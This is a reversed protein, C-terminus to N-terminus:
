PRVALAEAALAKAAPDFRLGRALADDILARGARDGSAALIVGRHLTLKPDPTHLAVARASVDRAGALDGQRYLVLALADDAYVGGRHANDDDITKRALDVDRDLTALLVALSRKDGSKGLAIARALARESAVTDGQIEHAKALWWATDVLPAKDLAQQLLAVAEGARDTAILCRAKGVLAAPHDPKEALAMEYGKLAGDVDGKMWFINAAESLVWAAPEHDKQGRGADYALRIAELAGAEDGRLWELYSARAYSPLCPKRDMMEQAAKEAGEVDGLELLADSLTGWTLIDEHDRALMKNALDRAEAFKHDNLLALGRLGLALANDPERELVEQACADAHMYFGPDGSNRALEVWARGLLIWLDSKGENARVARQREGVLAGVSGDGGGFLRPVAALCLARSPSSAVARTPARAVEDDCAALAAVPLLLALLAATRQM